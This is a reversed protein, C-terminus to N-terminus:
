LRVDCLQRCSVALWFLAQFSMSLQSVVQGRTAQLQRGGAAVLALAARIRSKLGFTGTRLLLMWRLVLRQTHQAQMCPLRFSCSWMFSSALRYTHVMSNHDRLKGAPSFEIPFVKSMAVVGPALMAVELEAALGRINNQLGQCQHLTKPLHNKEVLAPSSSTSSREALLREAFRLEATGACGRSNKCVSNWCQPSHFPKGGRKVRNQYKQIGSICPRAEHLDAASQLLLKLRRTADRAVKSQLERELM